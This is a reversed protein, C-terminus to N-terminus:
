EEGTKIPAGYTLFEAARLIASVVQLFPFDCSFLGRDPPKKPGNSRRRYLGITFNGTPSPDDLSGPVPFPAPM